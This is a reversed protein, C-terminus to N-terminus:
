RASEPIARPSRTMTQPTLRGSYPIPRRAARRRPATSTGSSTLERGSKARLITSRVRAVAAITDACVRSRASVSPMGSCSMSFSGSRALPRVGSGAASRSPSSRASITNVEPVVPSGLPAISVCRLTSEFASAARCIKGMPGFCRSSENMGSECM